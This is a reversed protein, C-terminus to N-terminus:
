FSSVQLSFVGSFMLVMSFGLFVVMIKVKPPGAVLGALLGLVAKDGKSEFRSEQM